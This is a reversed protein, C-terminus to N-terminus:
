GAEETVGKGVIWSECDEAGHRPPSPDALLCMRPRHVLGTMPTQAQMSHNPPKHSHVPNKLALLAVPDTPESSPKPIPLQSNFPPLNTRLYQKKTNYFDPMLHAQAKARTPGTM